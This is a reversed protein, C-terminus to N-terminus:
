SNCQNASLSVQFLQSNGSFYAHDLSCSMKLQSIDNSKELLEDNLECSNIVSILNNSAYPKNATTYNDPEVDILLSFSDRYNFYSHDSFSDTGHAEDAFVHAVLKVNPAKLQLNLSKHKLLQKTEKTTHRSRQGTIALMKKCSINQKPRRGITVPKHHHTFHSKKNKDATLLSSPKNNNYHFASVPNIRHYSHDKDVLQREGDRQEKNSQAKRLVVKPTKKGISFYAHDVKQLRERETSYSHDM